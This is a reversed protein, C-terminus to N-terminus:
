LARIMLMYQSTLYILAILLIMLLYFLYYRLLFEEKRFEMHVKINKSSKNRVSVYQTPRNPNSGCLDEVGLVM